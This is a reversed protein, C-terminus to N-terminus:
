RSMFFNWSLDPKQCVLDPAGVISSNEEKERRTLTCGERKPLQGWPPGPRCGLLEAVGTFTGRSWMGLM